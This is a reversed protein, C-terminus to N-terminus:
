ASGDCTSPCSSVATLLQGDVQSPDAYLGNPVVQLNTPDILIDSTVTYLPKGLIGFGAGALSGVVALVIAAFLGARLWSFLRGFDLELFDGIKNLTVTEVRGDNSRPLRPRDSTDLRAFAGAGSRPSARDSSDHNATM